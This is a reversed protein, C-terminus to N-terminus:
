RRLGAAEFAKQLDWYMVMQAARGERFTWLQGWRVDVPVGSERGRGRMAVVALVREPGARHFAWDVHFDEWADVWERSFQIAGEAGHRVDGEPHGPVIWEFDPAVGSFAGEADDHQWILEYGRELIDVPDRTV